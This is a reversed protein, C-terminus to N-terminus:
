RFLLRAGALLLIIALAFRTARESMWRLGITAGAIAGALAGIAYLATGPAPNQAALLQGIAKRL